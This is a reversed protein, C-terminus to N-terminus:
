GNDGGFVKRIQEPTMEHVPKTMRVKKKPAAKSNELAKILKKCERATRIRIYTTFSSTAM